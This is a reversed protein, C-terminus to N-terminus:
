ALREFTLLAAKAPLSLNAAILAIRAPTYHHERDLINMTAVLQAASCSRCTSSRDAAWRASSSM